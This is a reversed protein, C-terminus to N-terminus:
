VGAHRFRRLNTRALDRAVDRIGAHSPLAGCCLQAQASRRSRLWESAPRPDNRPKTRQVHGSGPMRRVPRSARPAHGKGPVDQRTRRLFVGFRNEAYAARSRELRSTPSHGVWARASRPRLASLDAHNERHNCHTATAAVHPSLCFESLTRSLFPRKYKQEIQARALEVLKGYEVGSPCATECARCDLCRDIHTVFSEGLELRGQDVLAM